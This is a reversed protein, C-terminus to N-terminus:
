AANAKTHTRARQEAYNSMRTEAELEAAQGRPREQQWLQRFQERLAPTDHARLKGASGPIRQPGHEATHNISANLLTNYIQRGPRDRTSLELQTLYDLPPTSQEPDFLESEVEDWDLYIGAVRIWQEAREIDAQRDNQREAKPIDAQIQAVRSKLMGWPSRVTGDEHEAAVRDIATEVAHPARQHVRAIAAATDPHPM